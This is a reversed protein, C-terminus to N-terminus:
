ARPGALRRGRVWAARVMDPHARFILRSALDAPDDDHPQGGLPMAFGPDVVILDAEKGPELSGIADDLGLMRAGDLTGLRLWDLPTLVAGEDDVLSRRAMQAYAGARMVSFISPDPGGSVDSGLGVSLGARLYRALPM